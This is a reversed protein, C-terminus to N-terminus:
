AVGLDALTKLVVAVADCGTYLYGDVTVPVAGPKGALLLTTVGAARLAGAVDQGASGYLADTSCLCAVTSGSATLAATFAAAIEAPDTSAPGTVTHVGGAAFLNAAFTARATHAALPGLVALFVTPPGRATGLPRPAPHPAPPKETLNPFESVGTLPDRRRALM